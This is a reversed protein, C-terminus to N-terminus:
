LLLTLAAQYSHSHAVGVNTLSNFNRTNLMWSCQLPLVAHQFVFSQNFTGGTFIGMNRTCTNPPM